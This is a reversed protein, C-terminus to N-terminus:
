EKLFEVDTTTWGGIIEFYYPDVFFIIPDFYFLLTNEFFLLTDNFFYYPRLFYYPIPEFITHDNIIAKRIKNKFIIPDYFYYPWDFIVPYKLFIIPHYWFFYPRSFIIPNELFLLTYNWFTYPRKWNDESNTKWFYYPWLFLLTM